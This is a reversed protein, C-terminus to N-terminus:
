PWPTGACAGVTNGVMTGAGGGGPTEPTDAKGALTVASTAFRGGRASTAFGAGVDDREGEGTGDVFDVDMDKWFVRGSMSHFSRGASITVPGVDDAEDARLERLM